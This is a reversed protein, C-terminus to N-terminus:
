QIDVVDDFYISPKQDIIFKKRWKMFKRMSSTYIDSHNEFRECLDFPIPDVGVVRKWIKSFLDDEEDQELDDFYFETVIDRRYDLNAKKIQYAIIKLNEYSKNLCKGISFIEWEDNSWKRQYDLKNGCQLQHVDGLIDHLKDLFQKRVLVHRPVPKRNFHFPHPDFYSKRVGKHEGVHGMPLTELLASEGLGHMQYTKSRRPSAMFTTISDYELEELRPLWINEKEFNTILILGDVDSHYMFYKTMPLVGQSTVMFPPYSGIADWDYIKNELGGYRNRFIWGSKVSESVGKSPLSILINSAIDRVVDDLLENMFPYRDKIIGTRRLNLPFNGNTDFVSVNPVVLKWLMDSFGWGGIDIEPDPVDTPKGSRNSKEVIIGNCSLYPSENYTWQVDDIKDVNLRNWGLPIDVGSNPISYKDEKEEGDVRRVVEPDDLCYWDWDTNVSLIEDKINKNIPIKVQTGIKCNTREIEIPDSGIGAEFCLGEAESVHRTTVHIREGLLFAALAGVGFRGARLVEPQGPENMYEKKWEDSERYTAGATLFYEQLIKATMGIGRDTVTVWDQGNEDCTVSVVVDAEQDRLDLSSSDGNQEEYSRRERVADVANQILERIGIEPRNNYLPRILLPLLKATATGFRVHEPVYDVRQAFDEKDDVNSRVRRVRLGLKSKEERRGYVEGLVAWSDDIEEQLGALWDRIRLFTGVDDPDAVIFPAEPDNESEPRVDEVAAHVRWERQSYPSKIGQVKLREAPARDPQIQLYDAVRLLTMLFVAHVDRPDVRTYYKNKLYDLCGRVPLGHSRAVVGALDTLDKQVSLEILDKTRPGPVGYLAIQHALQAHHRRIFEGILRRNDETMELQELSDRDIPRAEGLLRILEKEGFRLVETRYDEWLEDWGRDRFQECPEWKGSSILTEFGDKTIHMGADHLLTSLILVAADEATLVEWSEERILSVATHLVHEIHDVSHDTYDPFFTLHKGQLELWDLFSEVSRNVDAELSRDGRLLDELQDPIEM